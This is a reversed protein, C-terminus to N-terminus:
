ANQKPKQGVTKLIEDRLVVHLVSKIGSEKIGFEYSSQAIKRDWEPSLREVYDICFRDIEFPEKGGVKHMLSPAIKEAWQQAEISKSIEEGFDTLRLPSGRTVPPPSLRSLIDKIDDRVEKMFSKFNERDKDVSGTWRAFKFSATGVAVSIIAVAGLAGIWHYWEM